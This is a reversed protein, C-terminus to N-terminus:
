NAQLPPTSINTRDLELHREANATSQAPQLSQEVDTAEEMLLWTPTKIPNCLDNLANRKKELLEM